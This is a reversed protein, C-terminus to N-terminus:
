SKFRIKGQLISQRFRHIIYRNQDKRKQTLKLINEHDSESIAEEQVLEDLVHGKSFDLRDVIKQYKEQLVEKHVYVLLSFFSVLSFNWCM